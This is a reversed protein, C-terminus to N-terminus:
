SINKRIKRLYKEVEGSSVPKMDKIDFNDIFYWDDRFFKFEWYDADHLKICKVLFWSYDIRKKSVRFFKWEFNSRIKDINKEREKYLKEKIKDVVKQATKLQKELEKINEMSEILFYVIEVKKCMGWVNWTDIWIVRTNSKTRTWRQKSVM